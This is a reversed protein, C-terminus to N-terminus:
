PLGPDLVRGLRPTDDARELLQVIQRTERDADALDRLTWWKAKRAETALELSPRQTARVRFVVDVSQTAPHVGYTVPDGPDIILGVEELVERAVAERPTEGRDLLGGPLSWGSRHPQWLMLVQGDHEIACVAGVTYNPTGTRVLLRRVPGPLRRFGLLAATGAKRRLEDADMLPM